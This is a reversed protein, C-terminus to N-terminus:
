DGDIQCHEKDPIMVLSLTSWIRQIEDRLEVVQKVQSSKFSEFQKRMERMQDAIDQGQKDKIIIEKRDIDTPLDFLFSKKFKNKTSQLINSENINENAVFEYNIYDTDGSISNM